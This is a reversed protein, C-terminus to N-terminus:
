QRLAATAIIEVRIEPAALAAECTARAPAMGDPVWAEWAANMPAFDRAMDAVWIQVTLLRERSTGARALYGDLQQLIDATQAGADGNRANATLGAVYVTGNHIVVRSLRPGTDIRQIDSMIKM